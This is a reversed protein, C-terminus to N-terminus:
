SVENTDKSPRSLIEIKDSSSLSKSSSFVWKNLATLLKTKLNSFFGRLSGVLWIRFTNLNHVAIRPWKSRNWYYKRTYCCYPKNRLVIKEVLLFDIMSLLNSLDNSKYFRKLFLQGSGQPLKSCIWIQKM